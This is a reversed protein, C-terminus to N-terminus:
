SASPLANLNCRNAVALFADGGPLKRVQYESLGILSQAFRMILKQNWELTEKEGWSHLHAYEQPRDHEENVLRIVSSWICVFARSCLHTAAWDRFSFPVFDGGQDVRTFKETHYILVTLSTVCDRWSLDDGGQLASHANLLDALVTWFHTRESPAEYPMVDILASILTLLGHERALTALKSVAYGRDQALVGRIEHLSIWQSSLSYQLAAYLNRRHSVHGNLLANPTNLGCHRNGHQPFLTVLLRKEAPSAAREFIANRAKDAQGEAERGVVRDLFSQNPIEDSTFLSPAGCLERYIAPNVIDLAALGFVDAANVDLFVEVPYLLCRNLTRKVDRPTCMVRVLGGDLLEDIRERAPQRVQQAPLLSILQDIAKHVLSQISDRRLPPLPVRLQVVKDLYDAGQRIGAQKLQDDAVEADFALVYAINPFDAVAKISRIVACFEEATVRDLDDIFIYLPTTAQRLHAVAKRKLEDLDFERTPKKTAMAASLLLPGLRLSAGSKELLEAAPAVKEVFKRLDALIDKLAQIDYADVWRIIKQLLETLIQQQNGLLWPNFYELRHSPGKSLQRQLESLCWTKGCGWPGEISVILPESTKERQLLSAVHAVFPRLSLEDNHEDFRDSLVKHIPASETSM